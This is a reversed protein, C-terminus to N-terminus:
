SVAQWQNSQLELVRQRTANLRRALTIATRRLIELGFQPDDASMANLRAINLALV